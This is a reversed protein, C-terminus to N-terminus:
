QKEEDNAKSHFGAGPKQADAPPQSDAREPEGPRGRAMKAIERRKRVLYERVEPDNFSATDIEGNHIFHWIKEEPVGTQESLEHLTLFEGHSQADRLMNKLLRLVDRDSEPLATEERCRPCQRHEENPNLFIIGCTECKSFQQTM